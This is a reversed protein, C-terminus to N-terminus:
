KSEQPEKKLYNLPKLSRRKSMRLRVAGGQRTAQCRRTYAIVEFDSEIKEWELEIGNIRM